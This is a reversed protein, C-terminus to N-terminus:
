LGFKLSDDIIKLKNTWTIKFLDTAKFKQGKYFIDTIQWSPHEHEVEFSELIYKEIIYELDKKNAFFRTTIEGYGTREIIMDDCIKNKQFILDDIEKETFQYKTKLVDRYQDSAIFIQGTSSELISFKKM